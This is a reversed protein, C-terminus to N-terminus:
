ETPAIDQQVAPEEIKASSKKSEASTFSLNKTDDELSGLFEEVQAQTIKGEALLKDRLRVDMIKDKLARSLRM